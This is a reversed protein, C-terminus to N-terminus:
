KMMENFDEQSVEKEVINAKEKVIAMIKDEFLKKYIREKEEPKELIMKAFSELQEETIDYMGYQSYQARALQKAFTITEEPEVKLDHDKIISSSILQWQLDKIFYDFDNEIQELTLEKNVAILWRKLFAEPLEMKTKEVLVKRTDLAFKHESSYVLNAGIEEKIKNRFEEVTKITTEEGYLKKFLDENLEAKEFKLIETITFNFNSNLEDAEEHSINLMHGVEHRNEFAKVPDFVLLDNINKGVFSKKTEDDKMMDVALLVGNPQIGNEVEEGNEDLQVFDGRVSSDDKVEDDPVNQGMQSTALDVQEAIMKDSVSITYYDYEGSKDLAINIEPAIAIDFVFEFNEDTDWNITKQLDENPLPEGLMNLKEEVLYDSLNKSLIKNVEEVLIATGFRKKILGAPVKGPRFGPISAKQRYEKLADAVTKEYDAKEILIKIASNIDSTNERTINM